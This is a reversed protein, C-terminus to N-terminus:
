NWLATFESKYDDGGYWASDLWGQESVDLDQVNDKDFVRVPTVYQTTDVVDGEILRFMVDAVYYNIRVLDWGVASLYGSGQQLKQLDGLTAAATTSLADPRGADTAGQIAAEAFSQPVSGLTYDADSNALMAASVKSPLSTQEATKSEVTTVKMSPAYTAFEEVGNDYWGEVVPSDTNKVGIVGGNGGSAVIISDAALEVALTTGADVSQVTDPSGDPTPINGLVVPIGADVVADYSQEAIAPSLADIVVGAVRQDRAQDLCSSMKAPDAGGDCIVAEVGASTLAEQFAQWSTQFFPIAAVAPIYMVKKGQLGAPDSLKETPVYGDVVASYTDLRQQAHEIGQSNDVSPGASTSASDSGSGCATLVLTATLGLAVLSASRRRHIRFM